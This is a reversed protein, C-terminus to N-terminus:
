FENASTATPENKARRSEVYMLIGVALLITMQLIV